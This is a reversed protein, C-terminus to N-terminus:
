PEGVSLSALLLPRMLESFLNEQNRPTCLSLFRHLLSVEETIKYRTEDEYLYNFYTDVKKPKEYPAKISELDTRLGISTDQLLLNTRQSFANVITNWLYSDPILKDTKQMEDLLAFVNSIKSNKKMASKETVQTIINDKGKGGKKNDIARERREVVRANVCAEIVYQWATLSAHMQLGRTERILALGKEWDNQSECYTRIVRIFCGHDPLVGDVEHMSRLAAAAKTCDGRKGYVGIVDKWMSLSPPIGSQRMRDMVNQIGIADLNRGLPATIVRWASHDLVVKEELLKKFYMDAVDNRNNEFASTILSTYTIDNPQMKNKIMKRYVEEVKGHEQKKSHATILMNFMHNPSISALKTGTKITKLWDDLVSNAEIIDGSTVAAQMLMSWSFSDPTQNYKDSLSHFFNTANIVDGNRAYSKMVINFSMLNLKPFFKLNKEVEKDAAKVIDLDSKEIKPDHSEASIRYKDKIRCYQKSRIEALLEVAGQSDKAEAHQPLEIFLFLLFCLIFYYLSLTLCLIFDLFSLIFIFLM